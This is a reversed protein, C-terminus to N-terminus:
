IQKGEVSDAPGYTREVAGLLQLCIQAASEASQGNARGATVRLLDAEWVPCHCVPGHCGPGLSSDM